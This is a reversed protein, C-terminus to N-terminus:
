SSTNQSACLYSMLMWRAALYLVHVFITYKTIKNVPTTITAIVTNAELSDSDSDSPSLEVVAIGSVVTEAYTMANDGLEHGIANVSM